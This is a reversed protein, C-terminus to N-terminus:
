GFTGIKNGNQYMEEDTYGEGGGGENVIWGFGDIYIMNGSTEGNKPTDNAPATTTASTQESEYEPEADPNTLAAEDEIEPPPPTTQTAAEPFSQDIEIIESPAETLETEKTTVTNGSNVPIVIEPENEPATTSISIKVGTAPTTMNEEESNLSADSIFRSGILCVLAACAISTSGIILKKKAKSTMFIMREKHSKCRRTHFASNEYPNSGKKKPTPNRQSVCLIDYCIEYTLDFIEYEVNRVYCM